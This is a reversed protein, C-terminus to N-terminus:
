IFLLRRNMAEFDKMPCYLEPDYFIFLLGGFDRQWYGKNETVKDLINQCEQEKEWEVPLVLGLKKLKSPQVIRILEYETDTVKALDVTDGFQVTESFIPHELLQFYGNALKEISVPELLEEEKIYLNVRPYINDPDSM